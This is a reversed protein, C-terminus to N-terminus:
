KKSNINIVQPKQAEPVELIVSVSLLGDSMEASQVIMHEALQFSIQFNDQKIGKHLFQHEKDKSSKKGEIKLHRKEVEVKVEDEKFGATLLNITFHNENNKIIDYSPKNQNKYSDNFATEFLNNFDKINLSHRLFPSFNRATNM